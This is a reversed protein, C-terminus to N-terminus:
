TPAIAAHYPYWLCYVDPSSWSFIRLRPTNILYFVIYDLVIHKAIIMVRLFKKWASCHLFTYKVWTMVDANDCHPVALWIWLPGFVCTLTTLRPKVTALYIVCYLLIHNQLKSFKKQQCKFLHFILVMIFTPWGYASVCCSKTVIFCSLRCVVQLM